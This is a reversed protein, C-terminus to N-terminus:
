RQHSVIVFCLLSLLHQTLIWYIWHTLRDADCLEFWLFMGDYNVNPVLSVVHSKKTFSWNKQSLILSYISIKPFTELRIASDWRTEALHATRSSWHAYTNVVHLSSTSQKGEWPKSPSLICLSVFFFLWYINLGFYFQLVRKTKKGWIKM